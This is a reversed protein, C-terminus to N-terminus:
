RIHALQRLSLGVAYASMGLLAVLGILTGVSELATSYPISLGSTLAIVIVVTAWGIVLSLVLVVSVILSGENYGNLTAAGIASSFLLGALLELALHATMNSWTALLVRGVLSLLLTLLYFGGALVVGQTTTAVREGFLVRRGSLLVLLMYVHAIGKRGVVITTITYDHM